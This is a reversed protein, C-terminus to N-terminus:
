RFKYAAVAAQGLALGGDNAPIKRHIYVTFDAQKLYNMTTELLTMNQWVGGSLAVESLNFRQRIQNCKELVMQATGNHFRAAIVGLDVGTRFDDLIAHIVPAPYIIEDDYDFTYSGKEGPTVLNELEIAAQGEYDVKQCVGILSSIADFLRGMSSTLPANLGSGEILSAKLMRSMMKRDGPKLARVPPLGDDWDEGIKELWALAIRWPQKVAKEGGPLPIPSLYGVRRYGSYDALLFEGGWITGDDGLGTGDFAVGIVPMRGDHGNDALCAAIHAHHHQVGIITLSQQEARKVAYGTALYDPHLDCALVEPKIRFLSEFHVIGEKFATLTDYNEMEGIHYSLFAHQERVLCFTNKMEAGVALLSPSTWPLTVSFPAYGRSRRLTYNGRSSIRMVSDDCRAHIGRNHLLFADALGGLQTLADENTYAIPEGSRNGSTMVLADTFGSGKQREIILHHLPTYPLMVGLNKQGPAVGPALGTGPRLALIVIPAEKSSLLNQEAESVICYRKVTEIDPMIVALPKKRRLKRRRLEDVAKPNTADCALHFGGLGKIAMIKGEALLERVPQISTDGSAPDGKSASFQIDSNNNAGSKLEVWAQPGCEGCAIPQAHFRRDLPDGYEAACNACMEFGAMTTAERDYPIDEIITFRPGCNTCNIFPYRYRRNGPDFLEDLCDPCISIDPSVPQFSNKLLLSSVIKFDSFGKPSQETTRISDLHALPPSENKLAQTFASLTAPTGEAEIKVGASTNCVWGNINLDKALGYVFPRFGVGQVIGTVEIKQRSLSETM